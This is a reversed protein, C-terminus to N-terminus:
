IALKVQTDSDTNDIFINFLRETLIRPFGTPTGGTASKETVVAINQYRMPLWNLTDATHEPEQIQNTTKKKCCFTYMEALSIRFFFFVFCFGGVLM